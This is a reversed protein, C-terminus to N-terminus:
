FQITCSRLLAQNLVDSQAVYYFYTSLDIINECFYKRVQM